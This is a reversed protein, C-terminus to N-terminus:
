WCTWGGDVVINAGNIFSSADSILFALPGQIEDAQGIRGLPVREALKEVFEPNAKQVSGSPFPGPSIANIRIGESGFECAAYRTWQLLAAKAAGYFPPNSIRKDEYVRQDPSVIGYMSGINVVSAAGDASLAARLCPLGHQIIRHAAVLSVEYSKRYDSEVASEISGAGGAYANNVIGHLPSNSRESFWRHVEAENNIDFVAPSAALGIKRLKAVRELVREYSRGNVLVHAGLEALGLTMARGLYGTAGTVLVQKGQLSFRQRLKSSM